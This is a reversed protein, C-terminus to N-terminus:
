RGAAWGSTRGSGPRSARSRGEKGGRREESSLARCGVWEDPRVWAELSPGSCEKLEAPPERLFASVQGWQHDNRALEARLSEEIHFGDTVFDVKGLWDGLPEEEVQVRETRRWNVSDKLYKEQQSEAEGM